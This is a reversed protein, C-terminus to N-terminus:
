NSFRRHHRNPSVLVPLGAVLVDEICVTWSEERRGPLGISVSVCEFRSFIYVPRREVLNFLCCYSIIVTLISHLNNRIRGTSSTICTIHHLVYIFLGSPVFKKIRGMSLALCIFTLLKTWSAITYEFLYKARKDVCDLYISLTLFSTTPFFM